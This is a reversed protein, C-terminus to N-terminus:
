GDYGDCDQDVGDGLVDAAGPNIAADADDCDAATDAYGSPQTCSWVFTPPFSPDQFGWGDGDTDQYWPVDLCASDASDASDTTGSGCVGTSVALAVLAALTPTKM